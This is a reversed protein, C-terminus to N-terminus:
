RIQLKHRIFQEIPQIAIKHILLCGLLSGFFLLGVYLLGDAMGAKETMHSIIGLFTLHFLYITYTAGGWMNILRKIRNDKVVEPIMVMGLLAISYFFQEHCFNFGTLITVFTLSIMCVAEKKEKVAYYILVGLLFWDLEAIPTNDVFAEVESVTPYVKPILAILYEQIKLSFIMVFAVAIMTRTFTNLARHILPTILYFFMMVSVFWLGEINNWAGFDDSPLWMNVCFFFRLFKVSFPPNTIGSLIINRALYIILVIYYAPLIRIIKRKYYELVTKGQISYGSFYGGLLFFIYVGAYGQPFDFVSTYNMSIHLALVLLAAFIRIIDLNVKRENM